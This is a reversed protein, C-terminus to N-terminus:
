SEDFTYSEQPYVLDDGLPLYKPINKDGVGYEGGTEDDYVSLRFKYKFLGKTPRHLYEYKFNPDDELRIIIWYGDHIYARSIEKSKINAKKIGQKQMYKYMEKEALHKQVPFNILYWTTLFICIITIIIRKKSM